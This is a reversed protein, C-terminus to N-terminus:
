KSSMAKLAAEQESATLASQGTSSFNKDYKVKQDPYPTVTTSASGEKIFTSVEQDTLGPYLSSPKNTAENAPTMKNLNVWIIIGASLFVLVVIILISVRHRIFFNDQYM